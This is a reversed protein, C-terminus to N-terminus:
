SIWAEAMVTGIANKLAERRKEKSPFDQPGAEIKRIEENAKDVLDARKLLDPFRGVEPPFHDDFYKNLKRLGIEYNGLIELTRQASVSLKDKRHVMVYCRIDRVINRGAGLVYDVINKTM